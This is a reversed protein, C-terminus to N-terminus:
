FQTEQVAPSLSLMAPSALRGSSLQEPRANSAGSPLILPERESIRSSSPYRMIPERESARSTSPQRIIPRQNQFFDVGAEADFLPNTSSHFFASLRQQNRRRYLMFLAVAALIMIGFIGNFVLSPVCVSASCSSATPLPSLTTLPPGPPNPTTTTKSTCSWTPCLMFNHLETACNTTSCPYQCPKDPSVDVYIVCTPKLHYEVDCFRDGCDMETVM